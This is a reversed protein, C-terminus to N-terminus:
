SATTFDIGVGATSAIGDLSMIGQPIFLNYLTSTALSAAPTFLVKTYDGATTYSFTGAVAANGVSTKLVIHGANLMDPRIGVNFTIQIKDTVPISSDGDLLTSPTTGAVKQYSAPAPASASSATQTITYLTATAANGIIDFTVELDQYAGNSMKLDGVSTVSATMQYVRTSNESGPATIVLAGKTPNPSFDATFETSSPATATDLLLHMNDLSVEMFKAKFSAGAGKRHVDFVVISQSATAKVTEFSHSLTAGDDTTLGMEAGQWTIYAPGIAIQTQDISM